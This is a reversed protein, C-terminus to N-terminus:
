KYAKYLYTNDGTVRYLALFAYANGATGHCLGYGKKLLGRKWIIDTCSKAHELYKDDSFTKYAQLLMYVVGPSGHCWSKGYLMEDPVIYEPSLVVYHMDKLRLLLEQSKDEKGTMHYIVAGVALPGADGCLFSQRRSRIYHLSLKIHGKARKLYEEVNFIRYLHLYLLAI